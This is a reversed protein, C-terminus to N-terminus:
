RERRKEGEGRGEGRSKNALLFLIGVTTYIDRVELLAELEGFTDPKSTEFNDNRMKM